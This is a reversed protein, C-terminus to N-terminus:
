PILRPMIYWDITWFGMPMYQSGECTREMCIMGGKKLNVLGTGPEGSCLGTVLEELFPNHGCVIVDGECEALLKGMDVVNADPELEAITHLEVDHFVAFHQKLVEVAQSSRIYPSHWIESVDDFEAEPIFRALNRAQECGKDSLVRDEDPDGPEADPHRYIFVKM